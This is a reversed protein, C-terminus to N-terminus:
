QFVSGKQVYFEWKSCGADTLGREIQTRLLKLWAPEGAEQKIISIGFRKGHDESSFVIRSPWDREDGTRLFLYANRYGDPGVPDFRVWGDVSKAIASATKDFTDPAPVIGCKAYDVEYIGIYKWKSLTACSSLLLSGLLMAFLTVTKM